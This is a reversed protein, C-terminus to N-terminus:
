KRTASKKAAKKKPKKPAQAEREAQIRKLLESAPEDGPDQPVLQGSFARKLISQRLAASRKLSADIERENQEIVTFQAELLRVIEQQEPLSCLPIHLERMAM